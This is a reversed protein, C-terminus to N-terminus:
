GEGRARTLIHGLLRAINWADADGRHYTGEMPFGLLNLAQHLPLERPLRQVVAFLNKVNLHADGFPYAVGKARCEREFKKRDYDGYSAWLRVDAHYEEKLIHCAERLSVGGDVDEQTLTTLSQCYDSVTSHEPRVLISRRETRWATDIDLLCLGIEIIEAEQGPPPEEPWCTSEIDIVVISDLRNEM